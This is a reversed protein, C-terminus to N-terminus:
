KKISIKKEINKEEIMFNDDFNLQTYHLINIKRNPFSPTFFDNNIRKIKESRSVLWNNTSDLISIKEFNEYIIKNLSLQDTKIGYSTKAKNLAGQYETKWLDWIKSTSKLCFIGNNFLPKFFLDEGIRDSFYKRYNKFSWGSIKYYSKFIKKIGFKSSKFVYSENIEPAIALDKDDCADIINKIGDNSLVETDADMWIYKDYGPFYDKMFPRETLLKFWDQRDKFLINLNFNAKKKKTIKSDLEELYQSNDEVDLICLDCIDLSNSNILSNVLNKLFPYYKKDSGTVIVNKKM